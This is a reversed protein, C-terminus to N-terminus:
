VTLGGYLEVASQLCRCGMSYGDVRWRGWGGLWSVGGVDVGVLKKTIEALAKLMTEVLHKSVKTSVTLNYQSCLLPCCHFSRVTCVYM